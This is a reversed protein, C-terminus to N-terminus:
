CIDIRLFTFKKEKSELKIECGYLQFSENYNFWLKLFFKIKPYPRKEINILSLSCAKDKVGMGFELQSAKLNKHFPYVGGGM